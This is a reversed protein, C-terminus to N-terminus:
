TINWFRFNLWISTHGLCELLKRPGPLLCTM